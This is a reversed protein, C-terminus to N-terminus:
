PPQRPTARWLDTPAGGKAPPRCGSVGSQSPHVSMSVARIHSCSSAEQGVRTDAQIHRTSFILGGQRQERGRSSQPNGAPSLATARRAPGATPTAPRHSLRRQNSATASNILPICAVMAPLPPGPHGSLYGDHQFNTRSPGPRPSPATPPRRRPSHPQDPCSPRRPTRYAAPATQLVRGGPRSPGRRRVTREAPLPWRPRPAPALCRPSRGRRIAAATTSRYSAAAPTRQHQREGTPWRDRHYGPLAAAKM